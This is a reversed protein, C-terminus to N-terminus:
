SPARAPLKRMLAKAMTTTANSQVNEPTSESASVAKVRAFRIRRSERSSSPSLRARRSNRSSSCGSCVSLLMKSSSSPQWIIPAVMRPVTRSGERPAAPMAIPMTVSIKTTNVSKSTTGFVKASCCLSRVASAIEDSSTHTVRKQGSRISDPKNM